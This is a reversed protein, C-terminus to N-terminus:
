KIMFVEGPGNDRVRNVLSEGVLRCQVGRCLEIFRRKSVILDEEMGAVFPVRGGGLDILYDGERTDAPVLALAQVAPAGPLSYVALRKGDVISTRDVVAVRLVSANNIWSMTEGSRELLHHEVTGKEFRREIGLSDSHWLKTLLQAFHLPQPGIALKSFGMKDVETAPANEFPRTADSFYRLWSEMILGPIDNEPLASDRIKQFEMEEERSLVITKSLSKIRGIIRGCALLTRGNVGCCSRAFLSERKSKQIISEPDLTSLITRMCDLSGNNRHRMEWPMQIWLRPHWNPVWSPLKQEIIGLSDDKITRDDLYSLLDYSKATLMINRAFRTYVTRCDQSYDIAFYPDHLDIGRSIGLLGFIKDRPDSARLPRARHVLNLIDLPNHNRAQVQSRWTPLIHGMGHLEQYACRAQFMDMVREVNDLRNISFGYRDHHKSTLLLIKCFDDWSIRRNGCQISLKKSVVVEQFVWLREFWPRSLVDIEVDSLDGRFFALTEQKNPRDPDPDGAESMAWTANRELFNWASLETNTGTQGGVYIITEMASSYIDRMQQVQHNRENVDNQNICIADVWLRIPHDRRRLDRLASNLNQGIHLQNNGLHIEHAVQQDGWAYSLATYGQENYANSLRHDVIEGYIPTTADTSPLLIFVRISDSYPLGPYEYTLEELNHGLLLERKGKMIRDKMFKRKMFKGISCDLGTM